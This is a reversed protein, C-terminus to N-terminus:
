CHDRRGRGPGQAPIQHGRDRRYGEAIRGPLELRGLFNRRRESKAVEDDLGSLDLSLCVRAIVSQAAEVALGLQVRGKGPERAEDALRARRGQSPGIRVIKGVEPGPQAGRALEPHRVGQQIFPETLHGDPPHSAPQPQAHRFFGRQRAKGGPHGKANPDGGFKQGPDVPGLSGNAPEPEVHHPDAVEPLGRRHFHGRSVDAPEGAM